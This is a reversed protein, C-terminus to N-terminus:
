FLQLHKKRKKKENKKIKKIKKQHLSGGWHEGAPKIWFFDGTNKSKKINTWFFWGTFFTNKQGKGFLGIEGALLVVRTMIM